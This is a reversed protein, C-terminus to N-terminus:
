MWSLYQLNRVHWYTHDTQNTHITKLQFNKKNQFTVKKKLYRKSTCKKKKKQLESFPLIESITNPYINHVIM